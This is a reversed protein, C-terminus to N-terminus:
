AWEGCVVNCNQEIRLLLSSLELRSCDNQEARQGRTGTKNYSDYRLALAM